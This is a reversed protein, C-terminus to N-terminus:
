IKAKHKKRPKPAKPAKIKKIKKKRPKPPSYSKMKPFKKVKRRHALVGWGIIIFLILLIALTAFSYKLGRQKICDIPCNLM